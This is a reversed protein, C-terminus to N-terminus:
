LGTEYAIFRIFHSWYWGSDEEVVQIDACLLECRSLLSRVVDTKLAQFAVSDVKIFIKHM